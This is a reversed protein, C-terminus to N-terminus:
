KCAPESSGSQDACNKKSVFCPWALWGMARTHLLQRAMAKKRSRALVVNSGAVNLWAQM